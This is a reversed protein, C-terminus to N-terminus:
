LMAGALRDTARSSLTMVIATVAPSLQEHVAVLWALQIV